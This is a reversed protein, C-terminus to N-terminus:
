TKMIKFDRPEPFMTKYTFHTRQVLLNIVLMWGVEAISDRCKSFVPLFGSYCVHCALFVNM